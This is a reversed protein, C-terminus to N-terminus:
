CDPSQRGGILGFFCRALKWLMAFLHSLAILSVLLEVFYWLWKQYSTLHVLCGGLKVQNEPFHDDSSDALVLGLFQHDIQSEGLYAASFEQPVFEEM